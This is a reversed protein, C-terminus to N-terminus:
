FAEAPDNIRAIEGNYNTIVLPPAQIVIVWNMMAPGIKWGLLNLDGNTFEVM